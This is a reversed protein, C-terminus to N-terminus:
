LDGLISNFIIYLSRLQLAHSCEHQSIFSFSCVHGKPIEWAVINQDGKFSLNIYYMYMYSFIDDITIEIHTFNPVM